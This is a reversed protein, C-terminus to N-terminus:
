HFRFEFRQCLVARGAARKTKVAPPKILVPQQTMAPFMQFFLLLFM